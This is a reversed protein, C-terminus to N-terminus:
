RDHYYKWKQPDPAVPSSHSVNVCTATMLSMATESSSSAWRALLFLALESAGACPTLRARDVPIGRM